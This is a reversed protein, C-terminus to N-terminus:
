HGQSLCLIKLSATTALNPHSVRESYEQLQDILGQGYSGNQLLAELEIAESKFQAPYTNIHTSISECHKSFDATFALPSFLVCLILTSFLKM